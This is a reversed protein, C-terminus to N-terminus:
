VIDKDYGYRLNGRPSVYDARPDIQGFSTGTRRLLSRNKKEMAMLQKETLDLMDKFKSDEKDFMIYCTAAHILIDIDTRPILPISAANDQLDIPLPVFQVEVRMKESPYANFRITISGDNSEGVRSFRTPVMERIGWLPYDLEMNIPDTSYIFPDKLQQKYIKFPEILRSVGNIIYASAYTGTTSALTSTYDLRDLGLSPLASRKRNTGTAGQLKFVAGGNLDSTITFTRLVTDYAGTYTVTGPLANLITVWHAVYETPTYSGHTLTATQETSGSEIIDIKDSSSDVIIYTPMVTYDLKFATYTLAGSTDLFQSDLTGSTSAATHQAVRYVTPDGDFKIYWYQLASSPGSSFTITRSGNTCTATGTVAPELELIMPYKARAWTWSEDVKLSFINGGGLIAHHAKNLYTLALTEFASNGNTPEGSKELVEDLIDACTRFQSM